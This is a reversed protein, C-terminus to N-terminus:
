AGPALLDHAALLTRREECACCARPPSSSGRPRWATTTLFEVQLTCTRGTRVCTLSWPSTKTPRSASWAVFYDFPDADSLTLWQGDLGPHWTPPAYLNRQRLDALAHCRASDDDAQDHAQTMVTRVRAVWIDEKNM